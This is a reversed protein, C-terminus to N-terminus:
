EKEQNRIGKVMKKGSKLMTESDIIAAPTPLHFRIKTIM